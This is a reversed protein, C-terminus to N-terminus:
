DSRWDGTNESYVCRSDRFTPIAAVVLRACAARIPRVPIPWHRTNAIHILSTHADYVRTGFAGAHVSSDIEFVALRAPWSGNAAARISAAPTAPATPPPHARSFSFRDFDWTEEYGIALDDFRNPRRSGDGKGSIRLLM